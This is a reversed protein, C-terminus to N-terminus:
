ADTNNKIIDSLIPILLELEIIKSKMVNRHLIDNAMPLKIYLEINFNQCAELILEQLPISSINLDKM